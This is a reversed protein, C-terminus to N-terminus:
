YTAWLGPTILEVSHGDPDRIYLSQGGRPWRVHSEIPVGSSDLHEAWARLDAAVIAFALHQAGEAGHPPVTGGPTQLPELTAGRAFLLLVSEGDVDLAVLRSSDLLVGAGLVGVYFDRARAVDLVYLATEVVRHLVPVRSEGM